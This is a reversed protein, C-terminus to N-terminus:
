AKTQRNRLAALGGRRYNLVEGKRIAERAAPSLEIYRYGDEEFM